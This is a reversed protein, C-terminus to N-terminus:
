DKGTIWCDWSSTLLRTIEGPVWRLCSIPELRVMRGGCLFSTASVLTRTTTRASGLPGAFLKRLMRGESESLYEFGLGALAHALDGKVPERDEEPAGALAKEFAEIAQFYRGASYHRAAEQRLQEYDAAFGREGTFLCVICGAIFAARLFSLRGRNAFIVM